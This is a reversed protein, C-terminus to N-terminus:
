KANEVMGAFKTCTGMAQDLFDSPRKIGSNRISVEMSLPKNYSSAALIRAHREWDVTAAFLLNHQDGTADNDNLHLVILRDKVIDLFDLGDGVINGHGSDYCIGVQEPSYLALIQKLTEHNSPPLNEFAIQVNREAAYPLIADMSRHFRDWFAPQPNDNMNDPQVHLVIADGGLRATMDLRNKVLEVGALRAYEATSLWFKERGETAHLDSLLLGYEKLWRGIQEIESPSYMFDGAWHHVWHLHTFGADAIQRLYPEPSGHDQIIDTNISLM